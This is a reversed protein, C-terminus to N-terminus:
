RLSTVTNTLYSMTMFEDIGFFTSSSTLEYVLKIFKEQSQTFQQPLQTQLQSFLLHSFSFDSRIVVGCAIKELNLFQSVLLIRCKILLFRFLRLVSLGYCGRLLMIAPIWQSTRTLQVVRKCGFLFTSVTCFFFDNITM